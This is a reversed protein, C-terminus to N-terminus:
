RSEPVAAVRAWIPPEFAARELAARAAAPGEFAAFVTPGSGSMGVAPAGLARLRDRLRAVPPCLRVAAPELDNELVRDLARFFAPDPPSGRGGGLLPGLRAEGGGPNALLLSLAPLGTLPEIREGVGRVLAPRPDLFFPVDAGLGRAIRALAAGELAGPFLDALGRLVTGADSSGGGLGAAVPIRKALRIKVACALGAADLFREAARAALNRRDAPVDGVAEQVERALALTVSPAAADSVEVAVRDALDLPVFVSELEHTGDPRRSTIRLGLNLKAPAPARV